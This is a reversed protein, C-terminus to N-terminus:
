KGPRKRTTLAANELASQAARIIAKSTVTAGSVADVRTSQSALIRAPLDKIATGPRGERHNVVGVSTIKGDRSIQLQVTVDGGSGRSMGGYIGEPLVKVDVPAASALASQAARMIALSTLTASTFADVKPNQKEVIRAPVVTLAKRPLVEAHKTVTVEAIKGLVVSVEVEVDDKYGRSAGAYKGDPFAGSAQGSAIKERQELRKAELAQREAVTLWKDGAKEHGLLKHAQESEPDARLVAELEKQARKPLANALCWKALELHGLPDNDPIQKAKAEYVEWPPPCEEIREVDGRAFTMTGTEMRLLVVEDKIEAKGEMKRGGKLHVVDALAAGVALAVLATAFLVVPVYPKRM